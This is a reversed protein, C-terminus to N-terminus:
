RIFINKNHYDIFEKSPLFKDPLQIKCGAYKLLYKASENAIISPSIVVRYENDISIYGSDFASDHLTNLLLGNRPNTKENVDNSCVWPKIHSARLLKPLNLGTICCCGNYASLLANRFFTQGVRVKQVVMTDHGNFYKEGEVLAFKVKLEEAEVILSDSNNLFDNVIERDLKSGHALGVRGNGIYSPDYSKFNQLKLKVSNATRDLVRALEIIQSNHVTVKGSPITCYLEFALLTEERTWVNRESM